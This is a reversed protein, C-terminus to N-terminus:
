KPPLEVQKGDPLTIKGAGHLYVLGVSHVVAFYLWDKDSNSAIKYSGFPFDGITQFAWINGDASPLPMTKPFDFGTYDRNLPLVWEFPRGECGIAGVGSKHGWVTVVCRQPERHQRIEFSKWSEWTDAPMLDKWSIVFRPKEQGAKLRAVSEQFSVFLRASEAHTGTPFNDLYGRLSATDATNTESWKTDEPDIDRSKQAESSSKCGVALSCILTFASSALIPVWTRSYVSRM